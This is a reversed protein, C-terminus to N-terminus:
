RIIEQKESFGRLINNGYNLFVQRVTNYYASEKIQKNKYLVRCNTTASWLIAKHLRPLRTVAKPQSTVVTIYITISMDYRIVNNPNM